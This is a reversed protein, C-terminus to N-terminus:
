YETQLTIYLRLSMKEKQTSSSTMELDRLRIKAMSKLWNAGHWSSEENIGYHQAADVPNSSSEASNQEVFMFPRGM